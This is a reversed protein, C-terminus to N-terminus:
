LKSKLTFYNANFIDYMGLISESYLFNKTRLFNIYALTDEKPYLMLSLLVLYVHTMGFVEFSSHQRVLGHASMRAFTNLFSSFPVLLIDQVEKQNLHAYFSKKVLGIFSHVKYIKQKRFTSLTLFSSVIDVNEQHLGIEEFTERLATVSFAADKKEWKGGPFSVENSYLSVKTTRITLLVKLENNKDLIVPILIASDVLKPPHKLDIDKAAIGMIFNDYFDEALKQKDADLSTTISKLKKRVEDKDKQNPNVEILLHSM